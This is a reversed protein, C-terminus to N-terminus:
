FQIKIVTPAGSMVCLVLLLEFTNEIGKELSLTEEVAAASPSSLGM